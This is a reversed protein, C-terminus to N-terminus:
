TVLRVNHDQGTAHGKAEIPPHAEHSMLLAM